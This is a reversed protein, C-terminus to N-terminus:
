KKRSRPARPEAGERPPLNAGIMWADKDVQRSIDTLLDATDADGGEDASDIGDRLRGGVDEFREVLARLHDEIQVADDPYPAMRAREAVRELTGRAQGGITVLREAIEDNGDRLHAAVQDLFQHVGIFGPGKLNWHAEKVALQLALGDALLDNLLEVMRGSTQADLGGAFNEPV